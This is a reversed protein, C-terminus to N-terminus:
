ATKMIESASLLIGINTMIMKEENTLTKNKMEQLIRKLHSKRREGYRRQYKAQRDLDDSLGNINENITAKTASDGMVSRYNM